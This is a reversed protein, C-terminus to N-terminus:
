RAAPPQTAFPFAERFVHWVFGDQQVTDVFAWKLYDPFPHGTGVIRIRVPHESPKTDDLIVWLCLTGRQDQVSLITHVAPLKVVQVDEIALPFKHIVM